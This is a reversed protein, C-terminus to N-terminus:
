GTSLFGGVLSDSAPPADPHLQWPLFRQLDAETNRAPFEDGSSNGEHM